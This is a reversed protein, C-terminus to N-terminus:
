PLGGLIEEIEKQSDPPRQPYEPNERDYFWKLPNMQIYERILNMETENRIVHEYYNRQWLRGPFPPWSNQAVGEIYKTTTLLKFRHAIDPLSLTPAVGQPQGQQPRDDPCARPGAGVGLIIIGHLHNPMVTFADVDAGSYFQSIENWISEVMRGSANLAVKGDLVEGFLCKRRQTCVTVFYAGTQAYDFGPLRISRRHSKGVV